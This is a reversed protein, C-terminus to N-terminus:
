SSHPQCFSIASLPRCLAESKCSAAKAFAIANLALMVGKPCSYLFSRTLFSAVKTCYYEAFQHVKILSSCNETVSSAIQSDAGSKQRAMSHQSCRVRFSCQRSDQWQKTNRALCRCDKRCHSHRGSGAPCSFPKNTSGTLPKISQHLVCPLAYM